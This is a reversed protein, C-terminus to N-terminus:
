DEPNNRKFEQVIKSLARKEIRSVYSRSIGYKKAIEKQTMEEQGMLGYRLTLIELERKDLLKLYKMLQSIKNKTELKDSIPTEDYPIIDILTISSGDNDQGIGDFLSVDRNSKKTSRLYMLIENEICKAAYTAIRVGKEKTYTDIAKILGITGISILDEMADNRSEYKKAIHAVLRLNHEILKTRAIENKKILLEDVWYEEEQKTLTQPYVGNRVFGIFASLQTFFELIFDLM